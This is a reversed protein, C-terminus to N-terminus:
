EKDQPQLAAGTWFGESLLGYECHAYKGYGSCNMRKDIETASVFVFLTAFALVWYGAWRLLRRPPIDDSSNMAWGDPADNSKLLFIRQINPKLPLGMPRDYM